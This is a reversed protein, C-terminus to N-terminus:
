IEGELEVELSVNDLGLEDEFIKILDFQFDGDTITNVIGDRVDKLNKSETVMDQLEEMTFEKTFNFKIKMNNRRKQTGNLIVIKNANKPELATSNSSNRRIVNM